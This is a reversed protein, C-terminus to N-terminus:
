LLTEDSGFTLLTFVYLGQGRRVRNTREADSKSAMWGHWSEWQEGAEIELASGLVVKTFENFPSLSVCWASIEGKEWRERESMKEREREKRRKRRRRSGMIHTPAASLMPGASDLKARGAAKSPPGARVTAKLSLLRPTGPLSPVCGLALDYLLTRSWARM